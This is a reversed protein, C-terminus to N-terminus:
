TPSYRLYTEQKKAWILNSANMVVKLRYGKRCRLLVNIQRTHNRRAYEDMIQGIDDNYINEVSEHLMISTLNPLNGVLLQELNSFIDRLSLYLNRLKTLKAVNSYFVKGPSRQCWINAIVLSELNPALEALLGGLWTNSSGSISEHRGSIDYEFSELGFCTAKLLNPLFEEETFDSFNGKFKFSLHKLQKLNQYCEVPRTIFFLKAMAGCDNGRFRIAKLKSCSQLLTFLDSARKQDLESPEDSHGIWFGISLCKLDPQKALMRVTDFHIPDIRDIRYLELHELKLFPGFEIVADCDISLAKLNPCKISVVRALQVKASPGELKWKLRNSFAHEAKQRGHKETGKSVIQYSDACFPREISGYPTMALSQCTLLLGNGIEQWLMNVRGFYILEELSFYKLLDYIIDHNLRSFPFRPNSSSAM